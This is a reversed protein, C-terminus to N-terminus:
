GPWHDAKPRNERVLTPIPLMLMAAIPVNVALRLNAGAEDFTTWDRLMALMAHETLRALSNDDVGDLFDAPSLVGQLPHNIRALAEAGALCKRRLDIKPQYWIELWHERLAQEISAHPPASPMSDARSLRDLESSREPSDSRSEDPQRSTM